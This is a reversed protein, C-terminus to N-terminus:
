SNPFLSRKLRDFHARGVVPKVSLPEIAGTTPAADETAPSQPEVHATVEIPDPSDVAPTPPDWADPLDLDPLHPAEIVTVDGRSDDGLLSHTAVVEGACIQPNIVTTGAGLCADRDIRGSGIIVVNRGICVGIGIYLDGGAGHVITGTGICVGAGIKIRSDAEAQLLVGPAIVASPDISVNGYFYAPAIERPLSQLKTLM